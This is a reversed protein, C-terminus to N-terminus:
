PLLSKRLVLCNALMDHIAQRKETFGAMIYGIGLPILGTILKAFHRATARGFSVRAAAMDTVVIGVIKKGATAQWESSELLAHYLWTGVVLVLAFLSIFLGFVPPFGNAFDDGHRPLAAIASGVGLLMALGLLIPVIFVGLIVVDLVYAVFRLWFGAYVPRIEYAPMHSTAALPIGAALPAAANSMMSTTALPTAQTPQGCKACYLATDPITTGCKSCYV